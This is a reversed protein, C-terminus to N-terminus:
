HLKKFSPHHIDVHSVYDPVATDQIEKLMMKVLGFRRYGELLAEDATAFVGVIEDEHILVVKGRHDRVLRGREKEYAANERTFELPPDNAKLTPWEIYTGPRPM